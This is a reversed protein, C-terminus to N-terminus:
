GPFVFIDIIGTGSELAGLAKGIITGPHYVAVDNIMTPKAKMAHGAKSSSCLMDGRKIPGNEDTVKCPVRGCLAVPFNGEKEEDHDSNMLLGPETSIVGFVLADTPDGSKIICDKIPHLCVVDGAELVEDSFYIEALDSHKVIGGKGYIYNACWISGEAEVDWTHIGGGWNPNRPQASYGKNGILGTVVVDGNVELRDWVSVRRGMGASNNGVIMLTKHAGTDNSIEARNTVGDPSGTWGSSIRLPNLGIDVNGSKDLALTATLGDRALYFKADRASNWMHWKVAGGEMLRLGSDQGAANSDLALFGWDTKVHLPHTPNATGIGVNGKFYASGDNLCIFSKLDNNGGGIFGISNAPLQKIPSNIQRHYIGWNSGTDASDLFVWSDRDHASSYLYVNSAPNVTQYDNLSLSNLGYYRNARVAGNVDLPYFPNMTGIGVNGSGTIRLLEKPPSPPFGAGAFLFRLSEDADDGFAIVADKRNSGEDKLGIFLSDTDWNQLLGYCNQLGWMRVTAIKTFKGWINSHGFHDQWADKDPRNSAESEIHLEGSLYWNNVLTNM